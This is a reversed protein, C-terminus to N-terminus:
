YEPLILVPSLRHRLRGGVVADSKIVLFGAGARRNHEHMFESAVEAAELRLHPIERLAVAADEVIRAAVRRRINGRIDLAVRLLPRAVVNAAHEVCEFDVLRMNDADRHAAERNQMESEGIGSARQRENDGAATVASLGALALLKRVLRQAGRSLDGVPAHRFDRLSKASPRATYLVPVLVRAAVGLKKLPQRLM